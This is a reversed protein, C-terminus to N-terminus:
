WYAFYGGGQDASYKHMYSQHQWQVSGDLYAVNGGESGFTAPDAYGPGYVLGHAGHPAWSIGSSLFTFDSAIPLSSNDPLHPSGALPQLLQDSTKRPSQWPVGPWTASTHGALYNYGIM